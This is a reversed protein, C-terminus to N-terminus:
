DAPHAAAPRLGSVTRAPALPKEFGEGVSISSQEPRQSNLDFPRGSNGLLGMATGAHLQHTPVAGHEPRLKHALQKEVLNPVIYPTDEPLLALTLPRSLQPVGSTRSHAYPEPRTGCLRLTAPIM